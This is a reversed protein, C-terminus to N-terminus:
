GGAWCVCLLRHFENCAKTSSGGSLWQSPQLPNTTEAFVGLEATANTTWNLCRASNAVGFGSWAVGAANSSANAVNTALPTKSMALDAWSAFVMVDDDARHVAVNPISYRGLMSQIDDSSDITIVARTRASTCMRTPFAVAASSACKADAGVRAGINNGAFSQASGGQGTTLFLWLKKPKCTTNDAECGFPDCSSPCVAPGDIAADIPPADVAADQQDDDGSPALKPDKFGLVNNCGATALAVVLAFLCTKTNTMALTM